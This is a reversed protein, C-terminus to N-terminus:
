FQCGMLGQTTFHIREEESIQKVLFPKDIGCKLYGATVADEYTNWQGLVDQGSILVFKGEHQAVLESKHQEYTELELKLHEANM